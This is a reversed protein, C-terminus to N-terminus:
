SFMGSYGTSYVPIFPMRETGRGRHSPNPSPSFPFPNEGGGKDEGRRPTPEVLRLGDGSGILSPDAVLPLLNNKFFNPLGARYALYNM